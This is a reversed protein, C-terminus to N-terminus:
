YYSRKVGPVLILAINFFLMFCTTVILSIGVVYRVMELEIHENTFFLLHYLLVFIM